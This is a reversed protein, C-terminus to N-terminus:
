ASGIAAMCEGIVAMCEGIAAMVFLYRHDKVVSMYCLMVLVRNFRDTVKM